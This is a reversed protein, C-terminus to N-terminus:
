IYVYMGPKLLTEQLNERLGKTIRKMPHRTAVEVPSTGM